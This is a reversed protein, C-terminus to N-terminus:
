NGRDAWDVLHGYKLFAARTMPNWNHRSRFCLDVFGLSKTLYDTGSQFFAPVDKAYALVASRARHAAREIDSISRFSTRDLDALLRTQWFEDVSMDPYLRKTLEGLSEWSVQVAKEDSQDAAKDSNIELVRVIRDIITPLGEEYKAAVRDALLPANERVDELSVDCWIPLIVRADVSERDMLTSLEQRPWKKMFFAHSLMVIGFRSHSLGNEISQTLSSGLELCWDDLWIRFGRQRLGNALSLVYRQKDESAHCVFADWQVKLQPSTM